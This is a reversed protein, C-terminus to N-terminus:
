SRDLDSLAEAGAKAEAEQRRDEACFRRYDDTMEVIGYCVVVIVVIWFLDRM